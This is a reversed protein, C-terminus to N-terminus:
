QEAREGGAPPPPSGIVYRDRGLEKAQYLLQDARQYLTQAPEPALFPQVGVSCTAHQGDWRLKHVRQFFHALLVELETQTVPGCLLVAFEDGGLRGIVADRPFSDRFAAAVTQLARDGEPHGYQDNIEKFKDLDAMIFYGSLGSSARAESLREGCAAFFARRSLVGTLADTRAEHRAYAAHWRYVLLMLIVLFALSLIGLLFQIQLHLLDAYGEDNLAVGMQGLVASIRNVFYVAVSVSCVLTVLALLPLFLRHRRSESQLSRAADVKQQLQRWVATRQLFWCALVVGAAILSAPDALGRLARAPTLGAEPFLIWLATYVLLSHVAQGAYSVAAVWFAPHPVRRFARYLLGVLLGFLARTGVALFLSSLPAGSMVPSFLRDLSTVYHASAKWMSALGFVTGVLAADGPGLLAGALLVPFYAVTVSVPEIHIYGFYSFSMLMEVSVLALLLYWRMGGRPVSPRKM